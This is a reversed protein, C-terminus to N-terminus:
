IPQYQYQKQCWVGDLIIGPCLEPSVPQPGGKEPYSHSGHRALHGWSCIVIRPGNLKRMRINNRGRCLVPSRMKKLFLPILQQLGLGTCWVMIFGEPVAQNIGTIRVKQRCGTVAEWGLAAACGRGMLYCETGSGLLADCPTFHRWSHATFTKLGSQFPGYTVHLLRLTLSNGMLYLFYVSPSQALLNKTKIDQVWFNCFSAFHCKCSDCWTM